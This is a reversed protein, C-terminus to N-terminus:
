EQEGYTQYTEHLTKPIMSVKQWETVFLPLLYLSIIPHRSTNTKDGFQWLPLKNTKKNAWNPELICLNSYMPEFVPISHDSDSRWWKCHSNMHWSCTQLNEAWDSWLYKDIPAKSWSQVVNRSHSKRGRCTMDSCSVLIDPCLNWSAYKQEMLGHESMGNVHGSM